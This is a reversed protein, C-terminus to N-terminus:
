AADRASERTALAIGFAVTALVGYLPMAWFGFLTALVGGYLGLPTLLWSFLGYIMAAGILCAGVTLRNRGMGIVYGTVLVPIVATFRRISFGGIFSFILTGLEAVLLLMIAATRHSGNAVVIGAILAILSLFFGTWLLQAILQYPDM